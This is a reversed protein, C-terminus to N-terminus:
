QEIKFIKKGLALSPNIFERFLIVGVAHTKQASKTLPKWINNNLIGKGALKTLNTITKRDFSVEIDSAHLYMLSSALFTTGWFAVGKREMKKAPLKEGNLLYNILEDGTPLLKLGLQGASAMTAVIAAIKRESKPVPNFKALTELISATKMSVSTLLMCTLFVKKTINMSVNLKKM